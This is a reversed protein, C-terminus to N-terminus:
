RGKAIEIRLSPDTEHEEIIRNYIVIIDKIAVNRLEPSFRGLEFINVAIFQEFELVDVRDALGMNEALGEAVAVRRGMTVIIARRGAEINAKCKRLLAESPATSVHISVDEIEFDGTRGSAEDNESSCHHRVIGVGLLAELKAGVLHQAVTGLITMGQSEKQRMEAQRMIARIVARMSLSRDLSLSFPAATFFERVRKVWFGEAADFDVAGSKAHIENLFTAYAKMNGISGRSTRGGEEALVRYIGHKALIAQVRAKGLGIVQGEGDTLLDEHRLPMKAGRAHETVVLAVCLPGKGKFRREKVFKELLDIM